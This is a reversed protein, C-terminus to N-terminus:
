ELMEDESRRRDLYKEFRSRWLVNNDEYREVNNSALMNPRNKGEHLITMYTSNGAIM